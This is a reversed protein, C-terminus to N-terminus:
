EVVDRHIDVVGGAHLQRQQAVVAGAVELGVVVVVRRTEGAGVRAVRGDIEGRDHFDHGVGGVTQSQRGVATPAVVGARVILFAPDAFTEGNRGALGVFHVHHDDARPVIGGCLGAGVIEPTARHDRPKVGVTHGRRM